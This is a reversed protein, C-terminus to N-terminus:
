QVLIQKEIINKKSYKKQSSIIIENLGIKLNIDKSFNGDSNIYVLEGNIYVDAQRDTEGTITIIRDNTIINNNPSYITLNPAKRISSLYSVLYLLFFLILILIITNKIIKPFVLFKFSSLIKKSFPDSNENEKFYPTKKLIDNYDLSLFSCYKKLYKKVYLGSPIKHYCEEELANLYEVKINIQGSIEMLSLNKYSRAEKLIKGVKEESIINKQHFIPTM